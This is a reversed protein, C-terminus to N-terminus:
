AGARGSGPDVSVHRAVLTHRYLRPSKSQPESRLHGSVAIRDGRSLEGALREALRRFAVVEIHLTYQPQDGPIALWFACVDRGPVGHFIPESDVSGFFNVSNM